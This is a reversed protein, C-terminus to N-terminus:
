GGNIDRQYQAGCPCVARKFAVRIGFAFGGFGGAAPNKALRSDHYDAGVMRALGACERVVPLRHVGTLNQFVEPTVLVAHSAPLCGVFGAAAPFNVGVAPVVVGGNEIALPCGVILGM